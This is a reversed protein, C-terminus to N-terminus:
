VEVRRRKVSVHSPSSPPFVIPVHALTEVFSSPSSIRIHQPRELPVKALYLAFVHHVARAVAVGVYDKVCRFFGRRLGEGRLASRFMKSSPDYFSGFSSFVLPVVPFNEAEFQKYKSRKAKFAEGCRDLPCSSFTEHTVCVDFGVAGRVGRFLADAGARQTFTNVPYYAAFIPTPDCSYIRGYAAFAASIAANVANM